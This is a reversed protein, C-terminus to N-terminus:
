RLELGVENLPQDPDIAESFGLTVTIHQQLSNLLQQRAQGNVACRPGDLAVNAQAFTGATPEGENLLEALLPSRGAKEAYTTWDAVAIAIQDIDREMVKDFMVMARDPSVFKLGLSSLMAEGRAGSITALGGGSWASWNITMAPLGSARRHVALADLFASSATYNAQGASGLVSWLSSNLIFFDLESSKTYEHLLWSGYVRPEFLPAFDTGISNRWYEM